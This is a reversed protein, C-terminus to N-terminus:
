GRLQEANFVILHFPTPGKGWAGQGQQSRGVVSSMASMMALSSALIEWMDCEGTKGMSSLDYM